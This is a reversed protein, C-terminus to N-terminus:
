NANFVASDRNVVVSVHKLMVLEETNVNTYFVICNVLSMSAVTQWVFKIRINVNNIPAVFSTKAFSELSDTNVDVSETPARRLNSVREM